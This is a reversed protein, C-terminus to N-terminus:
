VIQALLGGLAQAVLLALLQAFALLSSCARPARCPAATEALAQRQRASRTPRERQLAAACPDPRDSRRVSVARRCTRCCCSDRAPSRASRCRPTAPRRPM